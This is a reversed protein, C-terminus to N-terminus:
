DYVSFILNWSILDNKSVERNGNDELFKRFWVQTNWKRLFSKVYHSVNWFKKLSFLYLETRHSNYWQGDTQQQEKLMLLM